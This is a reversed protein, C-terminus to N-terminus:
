EVLFCAAQQGAESAGHQQVAFGPEPLPLEGRACLLALEKCKAEVMLDVDAELGFMNFPGHVYDSHAFEPRGEQSESWHAVPRVTPPWTSLAAKFAEEQTMDGSM